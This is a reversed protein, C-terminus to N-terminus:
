KITFGSKTKSFVQNIIREQEKKHVLPDGEAPSAMEPRGIYSISLQSPIIEALHPEMYRFAGMNKPEEQVWIVEKLNKYRNVLNKIDEKPFPYLEEVRIIDLWDTQSQGSASGALEVAIRGTCIVIREVKEPVTGLGPQEIVPQFEGNTFEEIYCAAVQNRLLSKPTM